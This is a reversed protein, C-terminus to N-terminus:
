PQPHSSTDEARVRGEPPRERHSLRNRGAGEGEPLPSPHPSPRSALHGVGAVAQTAFGAALGVGQALSRALLLAPVAIALPPDGRWARRAMPLSAALFALGAGAAAWRGVRLWPAVLASAALVGALGIQVPMLRPTYGDERVRGPHRRYLRARYYGFRLKRWLYTGVQEPHRHRVLAGPAYVLREGRAAMRFSLDVDEVSTAPFREDFGGYALFASRRYAACATDMVAVQRSAALRAQKEEMELQTFRAVVARQGNSYGGRAGAVAPDVFPAALARLCGPEPRCDADFFVLLEGSAVRAGANRAAAPGLGSLRIVRAGRASAVAATGDSSGDDVVIVEHPALGQSTPELAALCEDLVREANRAPIVVSCRLNM